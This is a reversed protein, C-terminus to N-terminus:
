RLLLKSVETLDFYDEHWNIYFIYKDYNEFLFEVIMKPMEYIKLICSRMEM